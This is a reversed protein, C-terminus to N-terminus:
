RTASSRLKLADIPGLVDEATRDRHGLMADFAARLNRALTPDALYAKAHHAGHIGFRKATASQGLAVHQPFVFWIWHTRKAGARLEDLAQDLQERQADHFHALDHM